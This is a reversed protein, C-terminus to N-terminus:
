LVIYESLKDLQANKVYGMLGERWQKTHETQPIHPVSVNPLSAKVTALDVNPLNKVGEDVANRAQQYAVSASGWVSGWGWSSPSPM